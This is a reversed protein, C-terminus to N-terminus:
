VCVCVCVCLVNPGERQHTIGPEYVEVKEGAALYWWGTVEGGWCGTVEGGWCGTLEGGWCGMVGEGWWGVQQLNASPSLRIRM